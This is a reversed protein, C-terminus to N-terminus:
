GATDIRLAGARIEDARAEDIESEEVIVGDGPHTEDAGEKAASDLLSILVRAAGADSSAMAFLHPVLQRRIEARGEATAPDMAGLDLDKTAGQKAAKKRGGLRTQARLAAKAEPDTSHFRCRYVGDPDPHARVRNRRKIEGRAEMEICVPCFARKEAM